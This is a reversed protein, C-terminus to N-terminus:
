RYCKRLYSNKFTHCVSPRVSLFRHMLAWRAIHVPPSLFTHIRAIYHCVQCHLILCLPISTVKWHTTHILVCMLTSTLYFLSSNEKRLHETLQVCCPRCFGTCMRRSKRYPSLKIIESKTCQVKANKCLSSCDMFVNVHQTYFRIVHPVGTDIYPSM